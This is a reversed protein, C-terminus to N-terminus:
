WAALVNRFIIGCGDVVKNGSDNMSSDPPM